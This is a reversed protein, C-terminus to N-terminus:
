LKDLRGLSKRQDEDHFESLYGNLSHTISDIVGKDTSMFGIPVPVRYSEPMNLYYTVAVLSDELLVIEVDGDMYGEIYGHLNNKISSFQHTWHNKERRDEIGTLPVMVKFDYLTKSKKGSTKSENFLDFLCSNIQNNKGWFANSPAVWRLDAIGDQHQSTLRKREQNLLGSFLKWNESSYLPGIFPIHSKKNAADSAKLHIYEDVKFGTASFLKSTHKDGLLEIADLIEKHNNRRSSDNIVSAVLELAESSDKMEEIDDTEIATGDIDMEFVLKLRYPEKGVQNLSEVKYISPKGGEKDKLHDMYGDEILDQFHRQFAKSVLRDRNAVKSNPMDLTFAQTWLKELRKNKSSVCTLSTLEFGLTSGSSRLESVNLASGLSEFYGQSKETLEILNLENYKLEERKILDSIAEKAERENLGFYSAINNPSIAGLQVLRLIYERIFSLGQMSVYSFQINYRYSPLIFDIENFTIKLNDM